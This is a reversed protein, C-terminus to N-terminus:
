TINLRKIASNLRKKTIPIWDSKEPVLGSNRKRLEKWLATVYDSNSSTSRAVVKKKQPRRIENVVDYKQGHAGGKGDIGMSRISGTSFYEDGKIVYFYEGKSDLAELIIGCKTLYLKGSKFKM